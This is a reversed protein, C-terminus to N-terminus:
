RGAIAALVAVAGIAIAAATKPHTVAKTYISREHVRGNNESRERLAEGPQYLANQDRPRAPKDTRQMKFQYREMYKDMARPAHWASSSFARAAGGVYIDRKPNQAAYLIAEAVIEPAYVPPPLKPEVDMYNKAHPVFMTDIAAPKILTVSIPAGDHELELRLSDTYAKVAHKSAAYLGQLPVSFDSVESGLNIISGGRTRLHEAAVLSGHVVGWFNTDFLRHADELTVEENMGYISIGANNIWTDFGGFRDVAAQAIRRMDTMQGVDAVVYTAEHGQQQLETVIQQLADENRASLVVKAGQAAAMRATTLGIGSSAGTIVITQDSLKKLRVKM